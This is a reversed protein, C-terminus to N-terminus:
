TVRACLPAIDRAAAGSSQPCLTLSAKDRPAPTIAAAPNPAVNAAPTPAAAPAPAAASVDQAFKMSTHSMVSPTPAAEVPDATAPVVTASAPAIPAASVPAAVTPEPAPTPASLATTPLRSYEPIGDSPTTFVPAPRPSDKKPGSLM